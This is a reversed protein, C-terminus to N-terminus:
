PVVLFSDANPNFRFSVGMGLHLPRDHGRRTHVVYVNPPVVVTRWWWFGTIRVAPAHTVTEPAAEQRALTAREKKGASPSRVQLEQELAVRQNAVEELYDNKMQQGVPATRGGLASRRAR